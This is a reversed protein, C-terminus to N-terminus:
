NFIRVDTLPFVRLCMRTGSPGGKSGESSQPGATPNLIFYREGSWRDRGLAWIYDSLEDLLPPKPDSPLSGLHLWPLRRSSPCRPSAPTGQESSPTTGPRTDGRSGVDWVMCHCGVLFSAFQPWSLNGSVSNIQLLLVAHPVRLSLHAVRSDVPQPCAAETPVSRLLPFDLSSGHLLTGSQLRVSFAPLHRSTLACPEIKQSSAIEPLWDWLRYGDDEQPRLCSNRMRIRQNWKLHVDKCTELESTPPREGGGGGGVESGAAVGVAWNLAAAASNLCTVVGRGTLTLALVAAAGRSVGTWLCLAFCAGPGAWWAATGLVSVAASSLCRTISLRGGAPCLGFLNVEGCSAVVGGHRWVSVSM